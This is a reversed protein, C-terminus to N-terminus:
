FNDALRNLGAKAKQHLSSRYEDPRISLALSFYEKAMETNGQREFLNGSMLAANCAFYYSEYRGQEITQQYYELAQDDQRQLHHIRGLRYFYELQFEPSQFSKPTETELYVKAKEYYGGDFLLRARLLHKEPVRNLRAEHLATIDEDIVSVGQMKCAQMYKLYRDPHDNVLEYWALKQYAEKIYHLGRTERLFRNLYKDAGKELRNLRAVGEMFYLYPFPFYRHGHPKEELIRIAEENRGTQMAVNAKVFCALPNSQADITSKEIMSWAEEGKNELHLLLYAYMVYAEDRFVFENHHAYDLVEEIEARGQAITGTMGLLKVGWRYQDPVTGILAHLLGLNKKNPMFDPFLNENKSLLNFARKIEMVAQFYDEFKVRTIAWQLHIDAQTYLYYPSHIDGTRIASLRLEKNQRLKEYTDVQEGIFISLCDMYNALSHSILNDPETVRLKVLESRAEQFRLSFILDYTSKATNSYEFYGTGALLYSSFFLSFFTVSLSIQRKM